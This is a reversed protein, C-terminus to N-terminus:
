SANIMSLRGTCSTHGEHGKNNTKVQKKPKIHKNSLTKPKKKKKVKPYKGLLQILKNLNTQVKKKEVKGSTCICQNTAHFIQTM